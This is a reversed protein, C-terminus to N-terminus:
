VHGSQEHLLNKNLASDNKTSEIAADVKVDKQNDKNLFNQIVTWFSAIGTFTLGIVYCFGSFYFVKPLGILDGITGGIFPGIFCGFGRFLNIIGTGNGFKELGIIDILYATTLSNMGATGIAFCTAFLYQGWTHYQLINAYFFFPITAILVSLTNLNLPTMYRKDAVWGFLMRFPINAIGIVSLLMSPNQMGNEGAIRTLYIFPLFYGTFLFFNSLTIMLFIPCSFLLSFNTMEKFIEVSLRCFKNRQSLPLKEVNLSYMSGLYTQIHKSEHDLGNNLEESENLKGKLKKLEVNKNDSNNSPNLPTLFAGLGCCLLICSACISLAFKWDYNHIFYEIGMPLFFNGVGSGAMVIGTAIGIKKDFYEAIVILSSIYTCGTSIGGLVGYCFLIPEISPSLCCLFYLISTIIAGGMIVIRCGFTNTLGSVIPGSCFLFGSNLATILNAKKNSVEYHIKIGTTILGFSYMIGDLVFSIFFSAILVVWGYGGDPIPKKMVENKKNQETKEIETM